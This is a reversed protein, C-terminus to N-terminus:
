VPESRISEISKLSDLKVVAQDRGSGWDTPLGWFSVAEIGGEVALAAKFDGTIQFSTLLWYTSINNEFSRFSVDEDSILSIATQLEEPSSLGDGMAKLFAEKRTWGAFFTPAQLDIPLSRIREVELASFVSPAVSFVDFDRNVFEIDVGVERDRCFAMVAVGQSHSVNFRLGSSESSLYPKGFHRVSFKIQEPAINLYGGLIERLAARGAIFQLRDKAFVYKKARTQEEASLLAFRSDVYALDQELDVRWLHVEGTIPMMPDALPQWM